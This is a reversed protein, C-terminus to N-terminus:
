RNKLQHLRLGQERLKKYHRTKRSYLAKIRLLEDKTFSRAANDNHLQEVRDAGIKQTLKETYMQGVTHNKKAYKGSGGNCSKCQKHCNWPNYRLHKAAGRSRYHGADWAGGTKWAQAQEISERSKDCSICGEFYDRERIFANFIPQTEKNVDSVTKIRQKDDRHKARAQKQQKAKAKGSAWQQAHSISCFFGAPLQVGVLM